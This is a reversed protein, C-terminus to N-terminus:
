FSVLEPMQQEEHLLRDIRVELPGIDSTCEWTTCKPLCQERDAHPVMVKIRCIVYRPCRIRHFCSMAAEICSNPAMVRINPLKDSCQLTFLTQNLYPLGLTYSTILWVLQFCRLSIFLRSTILQFSDVGDWIQIRLPHLM